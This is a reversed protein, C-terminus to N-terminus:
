LFIVAGLTPLMYLCDLRLVTSQVDKQSVPVPCLTRVAKKELFRSLPVHGGRVEGLGQKEGGM